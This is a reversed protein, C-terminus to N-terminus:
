DGPILLYDLAMKSLFPFRDRQTLWWAIPDGINEVKEQLYLTVKDDSAQATPKAFLLNDFM